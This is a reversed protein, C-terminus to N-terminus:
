SCKYYISFLNGIKEITIIYNVLGLLRSGERINKKKLKSVERNPIMTENFRM